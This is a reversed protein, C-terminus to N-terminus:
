VEIITTRHKTFGDDEWGKIGEADLWNAFDDSFFVQRLKYDVWKSKGAIVAKNLAWTPKNIHDGYEQYRSYNPMKEKNPWIEIMYKSKELVLTDLMNMNCWIWYHKDTISGDPMEVELPLFQHVGPEMEEVKAKIKDSVYLSALFDPLQSGPLKTIRIKLPAPPEPFLIGSGFGLTDGYSRPYLPDARDRQKNEAMRARAIPEYWDKYEQSWETEPREEGLDGGVLRAM